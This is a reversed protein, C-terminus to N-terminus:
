CGMVSGPHDLEFALEVRQTPTASLLGFKRTKKKKSDERFSYKLLREFHNFFCFLVYAFIYSRVKVTKMIIILLFYNSKLFIDSPPSASSTRMLIKCIFNM